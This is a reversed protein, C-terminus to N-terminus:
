SILSTSARSLALFDPFTIVAQTIVFSIDVAATGAGLVGLVLAGVRVLGLHGSGLLLVGLFLLGLLSGWRLLDGGPAEIAVHLVQVPDKPM